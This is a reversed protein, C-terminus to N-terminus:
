SESETPNVYYFRTKSFAPGRGAARPGRGVVAGGGLPGFAWRGSPGAAWPGAARHGLPGTALGQNDVTEKNVPLNVFM